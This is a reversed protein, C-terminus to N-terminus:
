DGEHYNDLTKKPITEIWNDFEDRMCDECLQEGEYEYLKDVDAECKDCYFHVVHRKGCSICYDCGVCDNQKRIM